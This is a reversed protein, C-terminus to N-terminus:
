IEEKKEKIKNRHEQLLAPEFIDRKRKTNTFAQLIANHMKTSFIEQFYRCKRSYM